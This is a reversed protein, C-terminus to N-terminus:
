KKSPSQTTTTNTNTNTTKNPKKKKKRKPASNEGEAAGTRPTKPKKPKETDPAVMEVKSEGLNSMEVYKDDKPEDQPLASTSGFNMYHEKAPEVGDALARSVAASDFQKTVRKWGGMDKKHSMKAEAALRSFLCFGTIKV